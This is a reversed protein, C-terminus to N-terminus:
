RGRAADPTEPRRHVDLTERRSSRAVEAPVSATGPLYSNPGQHRHRHVVLLGVRALRRTIRSVQPQAIGGLERGIQAQTLDIGDMILKWAEADRPTIRGAVVAAEVDALTVAM